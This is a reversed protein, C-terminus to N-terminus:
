PLESKTGDKQILWRKWAPRVPVEVIELLPLPVLVFTAGEALASRVMSKWERAVHEARRKIEDSIGPVTLSKFDEADKDVQAMVQEALEVPVEVVTTPWMSM